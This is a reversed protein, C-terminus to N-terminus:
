NRFNQTVMLGHRGGDLIGIGLRGFAPRLINARHGPSQMLGTHALQLTPALALNEGATLFRVGANRLRDFPTGGEPTHHSFYSRAFMDASHQRAVTTLEPDPTLPALGAAAREQNVLELMQVELDPRPKPNVVAFPLTLREASEPAITRLNLTRRADELLPSLAAELRNSLLALRNTLVSERAPTSFREPLPLALLLPAIMAALIIGSALGPLVGFLRNARHQHVERPLRRLVRVELWYLVIGSLLLTLLFALPRNWEGPWEAQMGLLRALPQYFRLALLLSGAWRLLDFLALVFGRRWGQWVNVLVLLLLLVDVLNWTM